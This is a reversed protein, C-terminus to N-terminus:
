EEVTPDPRSSKTGCTSDIDLQMLGAEVHAEASDPPTEDYNSIDPFNSEPNHDRHKRQQLYKVKPIIIIIIIEHQLPVASRQCVEARNIGEDM